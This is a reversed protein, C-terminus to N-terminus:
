RRIRELIAKIGSSSRKYTVGEAAIRGTLLAGAEVAIESYSVEGMVKAGHKLHLRGSVTLQGSFEGAIVAEEVNAEGHVRGNKDIELYRSAIYGEVGGAVFCTECQDIRGEVCTSKGIEMAGEQVVSPQSKSRPVVSAGNQGRPETYASEHKFDHASGIRESMAHGEPM